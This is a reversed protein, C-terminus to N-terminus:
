IIRKVKLYVLLALKELKGREEKQLTDRRSKRLQKM